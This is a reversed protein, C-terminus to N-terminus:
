LLKLASDRLMRACKDLNQEYEEASNSSDSILRLASFPLNLGYSVSALSASEMDCGLAKWEKRLFDRKAEDAIFSDGAVEVGETVINEGRLKLALLNHLTLDSEFFVRNPNFFLGREDGFATTDIDYNVFSTPAFYTFPPLILDNLSGSVGFNFVADVDSYLLPLASICAASLSKGIGSIALVFTKDQYKRKEFLSVGHKKSELLTTEEQLYKAEKAMAFIFAKM